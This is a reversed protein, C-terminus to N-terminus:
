VTLQTSKAPVVLLHSIDYTVTLLPFHIPMLREDLGSPCTPEVHIL